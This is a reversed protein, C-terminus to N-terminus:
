CYGIKQYWELAKEFCPRMAGPQYGLEREAKAHSIHQGHQIFRVGLAPFPPTIGFPVTLAEVTLATAVALGVPFKLRPTKAGIVDCIERMLDDTTTNVSGLVYREGTRGKQAALVHGRAVDATSVVNIPSSVYGPIKGRKLQPILCQEVPKLEYPGFCGTPLLMVADLGDEKIARLVELELLHKIRFYPHPDHGFLDYACTEDALTGAKAKGLTTLSSTYILRKVRAAKAATLVNRMQTLAKAVHREMGFSNEPYYGAAYFVWDKGSFAEALSDAVNLDATIRTVPLGELNLPPKQGRSLAAVDHSHDVLERVIANGIIGTAGLVLTKM